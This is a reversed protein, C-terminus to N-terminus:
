GAEGPAGRGRQSAPYAARRIAHVLGRPVIGRGSRFPSFRLAAQDVDAIETLRVTALATWSLSFTRRAELRLIARGAEVARLLGADRSTAGERATDQSRHPVLRFKVRGLGPADFPSVAWYANDFYDHPDTTFPALGLTFPSKITAFLLDQDGEAPLHTVRSTSRFRIAIGLVDLHEFGRRWLAGSMRVLAPGALRTAVEAAGRPVSADSPAIPAVEALFAVGDPHFMRAGRLRSIAAVAPAGIQGLLTGAVERPSSPATANEM